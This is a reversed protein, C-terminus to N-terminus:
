TKPIKGNGDSNTETSNLSASPIMNPTNIEMKLVLNTYFFVIDEKVFVVNRERSLVIPSAVNFIAAGNAIPNATSFSTSFATTNISILNCSIYLRVIILEIIVNKILKAPIRRIIKRGKPIFKDLCIAKVNKPVARIM